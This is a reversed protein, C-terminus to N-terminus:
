AGGMVKDYAGHARRARVSRGYRQLMQTSEWGNLEMLDGETGGNRLWADTFGHRFMHPHVPIGLREGRGAIMQYIGSPTMRQRRRIGLWMAQLHAAPHRSRIRKYRDVARAAPYDFRVTRQKGGKGTVFMSRESLDVDDLDLGAVEALRCGTARFLHLIAADRRSIYDRGREADKVLRDLQEQTLVPVPNDTPKPAQPVKVRRDFMPPLDEEDAFWNSFQQICRALNNIYAKGYGTCPPRDPDAAPAKDEGARRRPPLWHPCPEGDKSSARLWVFFGRVHDRGVQEWEIAGHHHRLWGAFLVLGDTYITVTRESRGDSRLSLAFSDIHPRHHGPDPRRMKPHQRAM